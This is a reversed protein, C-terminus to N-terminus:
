ALRAPVMPPHCLASGDRRDVLAEKRLPELPEGSRNRAASVQDIPEVSEDSGRTVVLEHPDVRDAESLSGPERGGRDDFEEEVRPLEPQERHFPLVDAGAAALDDLAQRREGGGRRV